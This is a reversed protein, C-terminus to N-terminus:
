QISKDLDSWKTDRRIYFNFKDLDHGGHGVTIYNNKHSSPGKSVLDDHLRLNINNPGSDCKHGSFTVQSLKKIDALINAFYGGESHGTITTIKCKHTGEWDNLLTNMKGILKDNKKVISEVDTLINNWSKTGRIAVTVNGTEGSKILVIKWHKVTEKDVLQAAPLLQGFHDTDYSAECCKLFYHPSDAPATIPM